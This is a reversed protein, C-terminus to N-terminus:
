NLLFRINSIRIHTFNTFNQAIILLGGPAATLGGIGVRTQTGSKLDWWNSILASYVWEGQGPMATTNSVVKVQAMSNAIINVPTGNNLFEVDISIRSYKRYDFGSSVGTLPIFFHDGTGSSFPVANIASDGPITVPVEVPVSDDIKTYTVKNFKVTFSGSNTGATYDGQNYEISIGGLTFASLNFDYSTDFVVTTTNGFGLGPYTNGGKEAGDATNKYQKLIMKAPQTTDHRTVTLDLQFSDFGAILPSVPFAYSLRGWGLSGDFTVSGDANLVAGAGDAEIAPSHHIVTFEDIKDLYGPEPCDCPDNECIPCTGDPLKKIFSINSIKYSTPSGIGGVSGTADQHIYIVFKLTSKSDYAAAKVPDINLRVVHSGAGVSFGIDSANTGAGSNILSNNVSNPAGTYSDGLLGVTKYNLDGSVGEYDFSVSAFDSLKLNGPFTIEFHAFSPEFSSERTFWYGSGSSIATVTSAEATIVTDQATGDVTVILDDETKTLVTIVGSDKPNYGPAHIRVIYNGGLLPTFTNNAAGAVSIYEVVPETNERFWQYTIIDNGVGTYDATLEQYVFIEGASPTVNLTNDFDLAVGTATFPLTKIEASEAGIVTSASAAGNVTFATIGDFNYLERPTLTIAATYVQLSAFARDVEPDWTVVATYENTAISTVPIYGAEPPTLIINTNSIPIKDGLIFYAFYDGLTTLGSGGPTWYMIVLSSQSSCDMLQTYYNEGLFTKINVTIEKRNPTVTVGNRIDFEGDDTFVMYLQFAENIGDGNIMLRISGTIPNEFKLVLTESAKFETTKDADFEWGKMNDYYQAPAGEWNFKGLLVAGEPPCICPENDCVDCLDCICKYEGCDSCPVPILFATIDGLDSIADGSEGGRGFYMLIIGAYNSEINRFANYDSGLFRAIDITFINKDRGVTLGQMTDFKGHIQNYRITKERWNLTSSQFVLSLDYQVPEEFKIVFTKATVIDKVSIDDNQAWGQQNPSRGYQYNPDWDFDGFIIANVPIICVCSSLGNMCIECKDEREKSSTPCATLLVAIIILTTIWFYKRLM